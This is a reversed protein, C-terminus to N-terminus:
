CDTGSSGRGGRSNELIRSPTNQASAEDGKEAGQEDASVSEGPRCTRLVRIPRFAQGVDHQGATDARRQRRYAVAGRGIAGVEDELDSAPKV